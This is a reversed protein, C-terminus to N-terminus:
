VPFVDVETAKVSAYLEVGPRLGMARASATTVEAVLPPPGHLRVRVRSGEEDVGAVGVKWTNRPSGAPMTEYLAVAHPHVVVTVREGDGAAEAGEIRGGGDLDVVNGRGVGVLLNVGLFDAVYRSRPRARIEDISADQVIRGEELVVVRAALSLADVPEHAVLVCVGGGDYREIASRVSPRSSADIGALPEDLLLLRPAVAMTRALAVRRAQGGSLERPRVSGADHLGVADLWELAVSRADGKSRGRNRLGFAVNDVVSLHPLLFDRQPLLAADRLHPPTFTRGDDITRGDIAVRGSAIRELGALTRLLTTKGAGNPGAVVLVEGDAATFDIRLALDGLALRVGAELSV